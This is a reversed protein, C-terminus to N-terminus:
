SKVRRFTRLSDKWSPGGVTLETSKGKGVLTQLEDGEIPVQTGDGNLRYALLKVKVPVQDEPKTGAGWQITAVVDTRIDEPEMQAGIYFTQKLSDDDQILNMKTKFLADHYETAKYEIPKGDNDYYPM